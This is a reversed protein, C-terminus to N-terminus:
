LLRNFIKRLLDETILGKVYLTFFLATISTLSLVLLFLADVVISDTGHSFFISWLLLLSFSFKYFSNSGRYLLLFLSGKHSRVEWLEHTTILDMLGIFASLIMWIILIINM